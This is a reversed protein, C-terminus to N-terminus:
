SFTNTNVSHFITRSVVWLECVWINRLEIAFLNYLLISFSSGSIM